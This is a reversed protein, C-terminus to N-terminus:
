KKDRIHNRICNPTFAHKTNAIPNSAFQHASRVAATFFEIKEELVTPNKIGQFDKRPKPFLPCKSYNAMHGYTQCNICYATEVRQIPCDKTQHAEGCKLFSPIM